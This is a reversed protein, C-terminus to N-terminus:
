IDTFFGYNKCDAGHKCKGIFKPPKVNPVGDSAIGKDNYWIRDYTIYHEKGNCGYSKVLRSGDKSPSNTVVKYVRFPEPRKLRPAVIVPKQIHIRHFKEIASVLSHLAPMQMERTDIPYNGDYRKNDNARRNCFLALEEWLEGITLTDSDPRETLKIEKTM